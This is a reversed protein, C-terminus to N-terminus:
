SDVDVIELDVLSNQWESLRRLSNNEPSLPPVHLSLVEFACRVQFHFGLPTQTKCLMLKPTRYTTTKDVAHRASYPPVM